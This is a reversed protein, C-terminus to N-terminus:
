FGTVRVIMINEGWVSVISRDRKPAQAAIRVIDNVGVKSFIVYTGKIVLYAYASGLVPLVLPLDRTAIVRTYRDIRGRKSAVKSFRIKMAVAFRVLEARSLRELHERRAHIVPHTARKRVLYWGERLGDEKLVITVPIFSATFGVDVKEGTYMFLIYRTLRSKM